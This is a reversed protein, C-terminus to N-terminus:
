IKSNLVFAVKEKYFFKHFVKNLCVVWNKGRFYMKDIETVSKDEGGSIGVVKQYDQLSM